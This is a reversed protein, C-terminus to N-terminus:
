SKRGEEIREWITRRIRYAEQKGAARVSLCKSTPFAASTAHGSNAFKHFVSSCTALFAWGNQKWILGWRWFGHRKPLAMYRGEGGRAVKIRASIPVGQKTGPFDWPRSKIIEMEPSM